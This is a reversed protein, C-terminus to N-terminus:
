TTAEAKMARVHAIVDSTRPVDLLVRAKQMQNNVKQAEIGLAAAIHRQKEGVGLREAINVQLASLERRATSVQKTHPTLEAPTAPRPYHRVYKEPAPARKPVVVIPAKACSVCGDPGHVSRENCTSCHERYLQTVSVM